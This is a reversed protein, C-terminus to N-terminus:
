NQAYLAKIFDAFAPDLIQTIGEKNKYIYDQSLLKKIAQRVSAEPLSLTNCVEHSTPHNSPNKAIYHLVRKQNKSLSLIDKTFEVRRSEVCQKWYTLIKEVTPYENLLWFYGCIRNIYSPHLASLEFIKNLVELELPKNWKTKAANQIFETYSEKTIRDLKIIECSNYFPRNKNNFMSILMHRNSGSFIYSVNKSYQMAHRISAEITHNDISALQQFEDMVVIVRKKILTAASDLKKLIEAINETKEKKNNPHLILKQGSVTLMLEPNLMQFINLISQKTKASKPMIEGLLNSVCEFVLQEMDKASTIMTLEMICHPLGIELLVQNILSTKGYRRPASFVVHRNAKILNKLLAREQDRNCFANGTAINIPFLEMTHYRIVIYPMIIYPILTYLLNLLIKKCNSYCIEQRHKLIEKFKLKEM